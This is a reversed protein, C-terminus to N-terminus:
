EDPFRWDLGGASQQEVHVISTDREIQRGYADEENEDLSVTVLNISPWGGTVEFHERASDFGHHIETVIADRERRQPDRYVVHDGVSLTRDTEPMNTLEEMVSPGYVPIVFPQKVM